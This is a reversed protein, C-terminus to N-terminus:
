TTVVFRNEFVDGIKVPHYGGKVYDAPDEQEDEDSLAIEEDGEEDADDDDEDAEEEATSASATVVNKNKKQQQKSSPCAKKGGSSTSQTLPGTRGGPCKERNISVLSSPMTLITNLSPVCFSLIRGSSRYIIGCLKIIARAISWYIPSSGNYHIYYNDDNTGRLQKKKKKIKRRKRRSWRDNQYDSFKMM